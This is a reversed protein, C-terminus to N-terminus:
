LPWSQGRLASQRLIDKMLPQTELCRAPARKAKSRIRINDKVRVTRRYTVINLTEEFAAFIKPRNWKIEPGRQVAGGHASRKAHCDLKTAGRSSTSKNPHRAEVAAASRLTQRM